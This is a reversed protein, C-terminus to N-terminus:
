SRILFAEFRQLNVMQQSTQHASSGKLPHDALVLRLQGKTCDYIYVVKTSVARQKYVEHWKINEIQLHKSIVQYTIIISGCCM